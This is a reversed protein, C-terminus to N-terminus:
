RYVICNLFMQYFYLFFFDGDENWPMSERTRWFYLTDSVYMFATPDAMTFIVVKHYPRSMLMTHTHTTYTYFCLFTCPVFFLSKCLDPRIDLPSWNIGNYTNSVMPDMGPNVPNNMDPINEEANLETDGISLESAAIM